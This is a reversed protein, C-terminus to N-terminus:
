RSLFSELGSRRLKATEILSLLVSIAPGGPGLMKVEYSDGFFCLASWPSSV